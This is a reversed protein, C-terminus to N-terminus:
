AQINTLVSSWYEFYNSLNLLSFVSFSSHCGPLHIRLPLGVKQSTQDEKM